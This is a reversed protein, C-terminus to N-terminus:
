HTLLYARHAHELSALDAGSVGPATARVFAAYRAYAEAQTRVRPYAAIVQDLRRVLPRLKPQAAVKERQWRMMQLVDAPDGRQKQYATIAADLRHFFAARENQTKGMGKRLGFPDGGSELAAPTLGSAALRRKFAVTDRENAKALDTDSATRLGSVFGNVVRGNAVQAVTVLATAGLKPPASFTLELWRNEGPRLAPLTLTQSAKVPVQQLATRPADPAVVRVNLPYQTTIRLAVDQTTLEPNHIVAYLSHEGTAPYIGMNRQAKNNDGLVLPDAPGPANGTLDPPAIPDGPPASIEVAMCVHGSHTAPVIWSVPTTVLQTDGAAFAVMTDPSGSIPVFNSGLGYDAYLFHANVSAATGSTNRSIRAYAFNTAAPDPNEQIPPANPDLAGPANERRNWVDSTSFFDSNTSPEVGTDFSGPGATWDRVYFDASTPLEVEKFFIPDLQTTVRGISAGTFVGYFSTGISALGQYDGWIFGNQTNPFGSPDMSQLTQDSWTMGQNISRSFHNRYQTAPGSTDYDVYMVGVTGHHSVSIEPYASNHTGDTVRNVTWSSGQTNSRAVFIQAFTSADKNVFAVYIDGSVPDTAIWADSSRAKGTTGGSGWSLTFYSQQTSSTVAVGATGLGTWTAGCDDSRVVHYNVNEFSGGASGERTKYVMYAKGNPAVAARTTRNPFPANVGFAVDAVAAGFTGSTEAHSRFNTINTQLWPSYTTDVCPSGPTHDVEVHPQDDGYQAGVLMTADPTAGQRYLFDHANIMSDVGLMAAVLKGNRDFAIKQDSPGSLGAAPQPLQAVRRWSTGGNDSKWVPANTSPGWNGAFAVVAIQNPNFPNVAISPESYDIFATSDGASVAIDVTTAAPAALPAAVLAACLVAFFVNSRMM